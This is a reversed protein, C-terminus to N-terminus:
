LQIDGPQATIMPAPSGGESSDGADAGGLSGSSSSSSSSSTSLPKNLQDCGTTVVVFSTTLVALVAAISFRKMPTM